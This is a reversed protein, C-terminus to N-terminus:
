SWSPAAAASASPSFGDGPVSSRNASTASPSADMAAVRARQASSTCALRSSSTKGHPSCRAHGAADRQRQARGARRGLVRADDVPRGGGIDVGIVVHQRHAVRHRDRDVRRQREVPESGVVAQGDAVLVQGGRGFPHMLVQNAGGGAARHDVRIAEAVFVPQHPVPAGLRGHQGVAAGMRAFPLRRLGGGADHLHQRRLAVVAAKVAVQEIVDVDGHDRHQVDVPEPLRLAIGGLVPEAGVRARWGKGRAVAAHPALVHVADVRNEVRLVIVQEADVQIAVVRREPGAAGARRAVRGRQNVVAGARM